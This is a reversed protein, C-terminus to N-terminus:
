VAAEEKKSIKKDFGSFVTDVMDYEECCHKSNSYLPNRIYYEIFWSLKKKVFAEMRQSKASIWISTKGNTRWEMLKLWNMWPYCQEKGRTTLYPLKM